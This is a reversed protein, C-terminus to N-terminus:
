AARSYAHLRILMGRRRAHRALAALVCVASLIATVVAAPHAEGHRAEDPRAPALVGADAPFSVVAETTREVTGSRLVIRATWPGPPLSPELPVTISTTAGVALTPLGTIPFPGASTDGPGDELDVQGGLDLARAGTNSVDAVVIPRGDDDRGAALGTIEFGTDAEGGEGVSLYMRVGVRNVIRVGDTAQGATEAWIVGYREGESAGAPVDVRVTAVGAAEPDLQLGTPALTTWDALENGGAGDGFGFGSSDVFAAGAYLDVHVPQETHNVVEVHHEVVSSPAVHDVVYLRARPDDNRDTPADLLRISIGDLEQGAAFTPPALAIGAAITAGAVLVRIM